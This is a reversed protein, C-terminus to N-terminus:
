EGKEFDDPLVEPVIDSVRSKFYREIDAATEELEQLKLLLAGGRTEVLRKAADLVASKYNNSLMEIVTVFSVEHGSLLLTVELKGSITSHKVDEIVKDKVAKPASELATIAMRFFLDDSNINIYDPM